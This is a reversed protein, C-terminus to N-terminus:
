RGGASLLAVAAARVVRRAGIAIQRLAEDMELPPQLAETIRVSAELWRRRRESQAYARANEIVFGAATALVEVLM